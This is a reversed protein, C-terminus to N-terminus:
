FRVSLTSLSMISTDTETLLSESSDNGMNLDSKILRLNNNKQLHVPLGQEYDVIDFIQPSVHGGPQPSKKWLQFKKRKKCKKSRKSKDLKCIHHCLISDSTVTIDLYSTESQNTNGSLHRRRDEEFNNCQLKVLDNHQRRLLALQEELKNSKHQLSDVDDTNMSLSSDSLAANAMNLSYKVTKLRMKPSEIALLEGLMDVEWQKPKKVLKRKGKRESKKGNCHCCLYRECPSRTRQTKRREYNNIAQRIEDSSANHLPFLKHKAEATNPPQYEPDLQQLINDLYQLQESFSMHSLQPVNQESMDEPINDLSAKWSQSTEPIQSINRFNQIDSISDEEINFLVQTDSDQFAKDDTDYFDNETQCSIDETMVVRAKPADTPFTVIAKSLLSMNYPSPGVMESSPVKIDFSKEVEALNESLKIM